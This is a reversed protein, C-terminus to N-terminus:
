YSDTLLFDYSVKGLWHFCSFEESEWGLGGGGHFIGLTPLLTMLQKSGRGSAQVCAHAYELGM